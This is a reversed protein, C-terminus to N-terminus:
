SLIWSETGQVFKSGFSRLDCLVLGETENVGDRLDGWTDEGFVALSLVWLIGRSSSM